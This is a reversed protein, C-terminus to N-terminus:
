LREVIRSNHRVWTVRGDDSRIFDLLNADEDGGSIAARDPAYFRLDYTNPDLTGDQTFPQMALGRDPRVIRMDRAVERVLWGTAPSGVRM